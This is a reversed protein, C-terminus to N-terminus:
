NFYWFHLLVEPFYRSSALYIVLKLFSSLFTITALQSFPYYFVLINESIAVTSSGSGENCDSCASDSYLLYFFHKGPFQAVAQCIKRSISKDHRFLEEPIAKKSLLWILACYSVIFILFFSM